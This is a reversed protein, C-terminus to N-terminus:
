NYLDVLVKKDEYRGTKGDILTMKAAGKPMEKLKLNQAYSDQYDLFHGTTIFYTSHRKWSCRKKDIYNRTDIFFQFAHTHGECYIDAGSVIDEFRNLATTKSGRLRGGGTGHHMAIYYPSNGCMIRIVGIAGLFKNKIGLAECIRKDISMGTERKLRNHHNSEVMGLCKNSIPSLESIIVEFEKEPSMGDYVDSKSNKLPMDLLDGTSIWYANKQNKIKEITKNLLSIDCTSSGRHVDGINYLDIYNSFNYQPIKM